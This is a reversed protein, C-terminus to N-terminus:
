LGSSPWTFRISALHLWTFHLSTFHLKLRCEYIKAKQDRKCKLNSGTIVMLKMHYFFFDCATPVGYQRNSKQM